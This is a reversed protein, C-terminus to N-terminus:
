LVLRKRLSRYIPLSILLGITMQGINFPIEAYAEAGVIILEYLFYGTVMEIGGIIVSFAIWGLEPDLKLTSAIIGILAFIVLIIWLIGPILLTFVFSGITFEAIGQYYMFLVVMAIVLIISLIGVLGARWSKKAIKKSFKHTLYGTIFGELGKIVLTGPAYQFYGLTIDSIASGVGGAFAGVYPGFLLATLYVAAEGINFYGRTPAIYVSIAMTTVAVLATMVSTIAIIMTKNM